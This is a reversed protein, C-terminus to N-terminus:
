SGLLDSGHEKRLQSKACGHLFHNPTLVSVDTPFSVSGGYVLPRSNLISEAGALVTRFVEDVTLVNGLMVRMTRKTSKVLAEWAGGFWPGDPPNFDWKVGHVSLEDAIREQSLEQLADRLEREAGVFNSGNDSMIRVPNGRRARFRRLAMIFSDTDLSHATELHVARMQLCTFLCVYRKEVRNRGVRVHKFPTSVGALRVAPLDSM